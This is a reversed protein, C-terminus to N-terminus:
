QHPEAEEVEMVMRAFQDSDREKLLATVKTPTSNEIKKLEFGGTMERFEMLGDIQKARAPYNKELFQQITARDGSNFAALYASLQKEAAGQEQQALAVAAMAAAAMIVALIRRVPASIHM